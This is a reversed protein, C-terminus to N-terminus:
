LVSWDSYGPVIKEIDVAIFDRSKRINEIELERRNERISFWSISRESVM